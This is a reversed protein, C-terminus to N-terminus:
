KSDSDPRFQSRQLLRFDQQVVACLQDLRAPDQHPTLLRIPVTSRLHDLVAFEAARMARDLVNNAYTNTVLSLLSTQGRAPVIYPAPDPGRERLIYVAGVPLSRTEFRTNDKGLSFRCKDWDPSLLPLSAASGYIMRVSDPLLCLHPYAPFIHLRSTEEPAANASTLAAPVSILASLAAIDDSLVAYGLKALAAATTSKGAGAPGVFLVSWDDLAVASAHLCTTGRLRLLLGLVPGLLYSLTSELSLEDPWTAWVNRCLRDFWFQTGDIYALRVFDNHTSRWIQFAPRGDANTNSSAYSLEEAEPTPNALNPAIAAHVEVDPFRAQADTHPLGPLPLNSHILLGFVYYSFGLNKNQDFGACHIASRPAL